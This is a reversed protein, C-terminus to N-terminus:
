AKEMNAITSKKLRCVATFLPNFLNALDFEAAQGLILGAHDITMKYDTRLWRVMETLAYRAGQELPAANGATFIYESDEGRPWQIRKSKVLDVSFQVDFSTEIGTGVPEGDGQAAHGDGVYLLAGEQFVPFYATTGERFGRYDMNGGHEGSYRSSIMQGESPAVGICGLMPSLPLTIVTKGTGPDIYSAKRKKRDIKWDLYDKKPLETVYSHEVLHGAIVSSTWGTDRNPSATEIHVILTDGPVAGEVFFPGTLPNGTVGPQNMDRDYGHADLTTTMVRDGPSIRLEPKITGFVNFYKEPTFRHTIM